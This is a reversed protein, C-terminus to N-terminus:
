LNYFSLLYITDINWNSVDVSSMKIEKTIANIFKDISDEREALSYFDCYLCKVKCFPIHVYIGAKIM